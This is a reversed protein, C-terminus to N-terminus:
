VGALVENRSYDTKFVTFEDRAYSTGSIIFGHKAILYTAQYPIYKRFRVYVRVGGEVEKFDVLAKSYGHEENIERATEIATKTVSKKEYNM